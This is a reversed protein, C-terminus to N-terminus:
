LFNQLSWFLSSLVLVGEAVSVQLSCSAVAIALEYSCGATSDICRHSAAVCLVAFSGHLEKVRASPACCCSCQWLGVGVAALLLLLLLCAPLVGHQLTITSKFSLGLCGSAVGVSIPAHRYLQQAAALVVTVRANLATLWKIHVQGLRHFLGM